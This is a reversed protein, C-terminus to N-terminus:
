ILWEESHEEFIEENLGPGILKKEEPGLYHCSTCNSKFLSAGADVDQAVCHPGLMILIFLLLSFYNRLLISVSSDMM